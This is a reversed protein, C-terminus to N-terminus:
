SVPIVDDCGDSVTDGEASNYDMITDDSEEGGCQFDDAGSDGWLINTSEGGTIIIDDGSNGSISYLGSGTQIVDKDNGGSIDASIDSATIRDSDSGGFITAYYNGGEVAPFATITDRGAEGHVWTNMEGDTSRLSITDDGLGGLIMTHGGGTKIIVDNGGGGNAYDLGGANMTITDTSNTGVIADNETTGTYTAGYAAAIPVILFLLLATIAVVGKQIIKM